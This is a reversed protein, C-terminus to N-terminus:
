KKQKKIHLACFLIACCVACGLLLLNSIVKESDFIIISIISFMGIASCIRGVDMGTVKVKGWENEKGDIVVQGNEDLLPTIGTLTCGSGAIYNVGTKTDVIIALGSIGLSQEEKIVFRKAKKKSM